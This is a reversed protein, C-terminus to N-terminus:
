LEEKTRIQQSEWAVVDCLRYRVLRGIRLWAPGTGSKRMRWLFVKKCGWRAALEGVTLLDSTM